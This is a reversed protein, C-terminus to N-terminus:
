EFFTTLLVPRESFASIMCGAFMLLTSVLSNRYHVANLSTNRSFHLFFGYLVPRKGTKISIASWTTTAFALALVLASGMARAIASLSRDLEAAIGVLDASVM